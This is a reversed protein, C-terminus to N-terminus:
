FAGGSGLCFLPKAAPFYYGTAMCMENTAASSCSTVTRNANSGTNDYTCEYTLKGTEFTYFPADMWAVAGPHEWDDSTFPITTSAALGNKITTTKAQKHAHTSLMWFQTDAPTDCTASELHGMAGPPISIDPNFTVYTATPTYDTDRPLPEATVEVHAVIPEDTGNFYHMELYGYTGAEIEQGLPKGTGDDAPLAVSDEPTQTAYTWAPLNSLSQNCGDDTLTGAPAAERYTTYMIMHHSGPTMSSSWKRIVVDETNSTQFYYCYTIEQGPEITVEPSIIQFGVTETPEVGDSGCAAVLLVIAIARM